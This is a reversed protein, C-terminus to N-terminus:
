GEAVTKVVAIREPRYAMFGYYWKMSMLGEEGYPDDKSYSSESEPTIHKIKFKSDKGSQFGITTYSEKGVVLMPFVDYHDTGGVDTAAYGGNTVVAAGAGAWHQMEQAVIIRFNGVSGLEGEVTQTAGAYKEVPIFAPNGFYDTMKEVTPQLESGIYMYRANPITRTDTLTTGKIFTTEKPTRNNTLVIDLAKLNAYTVQSITAGEGTIQAVTQAAGCLVVVGASNLIDIQLRDEYIEVASNVLERRMHMELEADTDFDVSEKTYERFIGYKELTSTLETRVSGVRNVRGGNEGLVPLKALITGIDKSSGYLNGNAITAGTADIGEDSTNRDDLIPLYHFMKISKGYNKPMNRSSSMQSFIMSRRAEILANRDYWSTNFQPGVKSPTGGAPDNYQQTM